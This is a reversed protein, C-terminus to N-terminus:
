FVASEMLVRRSLIEERQKRYMIPLTQLKNMGFYLPDDENRQGAISIRLTPNVLWLATTPPYSYSVIVETLCDLGSELDMTQVLIKWSAPVDRCGVLDMRGFHPDYLGEPFLVSFNSDDKRITTLQASVNLLLQKETHKAKIHYPTDEERTTPNRSHWYRGLLPGLTFIDMQIDVRPPHSNPFQDPVKLHYLSTCRIVKMLLSSGEVDVIGLCGVMCLQGSSSNWIGETALTMNSLGSSRRMRYQDESAPAAQFVAAVRAMSANQHGNTPKCRVDQMYRISAEM